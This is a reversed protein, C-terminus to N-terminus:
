CYLFYLSFPLSGVGQRWEQHGSTSVQMTTILQREIAMRKKNAPLLVKSLTSASLSYKRLMRAAVYLWIVLYQVLLYLFFNQRPRGPLNTLICAYLIIKGKKRRRIQLLCSPTSSWCGDHAMLYGKSPFNHPLITLASVFSFGPKRSVISSCYQSQSREIFYFYVKEKILQWQGSKHLIHMWIQTFYYRWKVKGNRFLFIHISPIMGLM